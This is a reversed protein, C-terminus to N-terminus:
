PLTCSMVSSIFPCLVQHILTEQSKDHAQALNTTSTLFAVCQSCSKELLLQPFKPTQMLIQLFKFTGKKRGVLTMWINLWDNYNERLLEEAERPPKSVESCRLPLTVTYVQLDGWLKITTKCLLRFFFFGGSKEISGRYHIQWEGGQAPTSVAGVSISPFSFVHFSFLATLFWSLM